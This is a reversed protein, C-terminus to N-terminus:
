AQHAKYHTSIFPPFHPLYKVKAFIALCVCFDVYQGQFCNSVILAKQTRASQQQCFCPHCKDGAFLTTHTELAQYKPMNLWSCGCWLIHHSRNTTWWSKHNRQTLFRDRRWWWGEWLRLVSEATLCKQILLDDTWRWVSSSNQAMLMLCTTLDDTHTLLVTKFPHYM